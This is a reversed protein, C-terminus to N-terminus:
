RGRRGSGRGRSRSARGACRGCGCLGCRGGGARPGRSPAAEAGVGQASAAGPGSAAPRAPLHPAKDTVLQATGLSALKDLANAVAGASRTLVKGVQHPTFAKDPFMRLHDEVLDATGRAPDGPRKQRANKGTGDSATRHPRPHPSEAAQPFM